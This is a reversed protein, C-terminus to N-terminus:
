YVLHKWELILQNQFIEIILFCPPMILSMIFATYRFGSADIYYRPDNTYNNICENQDNNEDALEFFKCVEGEFMHKTYILYMIPSALM